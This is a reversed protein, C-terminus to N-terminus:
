RTAARCARPACGDWRELRRRLDRAWPEDHAEAFVNRDAYGSEYDYLEWAHDARDWRPDLDVRVLLGRRGRVAVYSPIIALTGGVHVDADVEGPRVRAYTHELFAYRAGPAGADALSPVFSTGSRLAPTRAGALAEFTPALDINSVFQQREGPAVDPGVVLLPVRSDTDYPAGKGGNLRHQGLHFGNDSTLVVYADDGVAQRIRGVMRDISQVMRARERLFRVAREDTIRIPNTRWAPAPGTTGDPHLRTPANDARPDDYGVLDALTLDGCAIAGCNGGDPVGEPARDRLAPPFLPVDPPPKVAGHPAYTSVTLFFPADDDRHERIFRLATRSIHHGVYSRDQETEPEAEPPVPHWRTTMESGPVKTLTRYGWGNYGGALVPRWEDWGAVPPPLRLQGDDHSVNYGNLFKGIFGTTYGARQLSRAFQRHELGNAQWAAYGGIPTDPDNPTNVLVGTQHPAQGTLLAARSPCCLSDVVFANAYSAGDRQMRLAQPMTQLLETSFDDMLVFVIDPRAPADVASPSPDEAAASPSATASPVVPAATPEGPDGTCGALVVTALALATAVVTRPRPRGVSRM